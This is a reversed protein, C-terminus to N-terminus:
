NGEELEKIWRKIVEQPTEKMYYKEYALENSTTQEEEKFFYRRHETYQIGEKQKEELFGRIIEKIVYDLDNNEWTFTSENVMLLIDRLKPNM